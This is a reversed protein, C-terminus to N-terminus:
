PGTTRIPADQNGRWTQERRRHSGSCRQSTLLPATFGCFTRQGSTGDTLAPFWGSVPMVCSSRPGPPAPPCPGHGSVPRQVRAVVDGVEGVALLVAAAGPGHGVVRRGPFWGALPGAFTAGARPNDPRTSGSTMARSYWCPIPGPPWCSTLFLCDFAARFRSCVATAAYRASCGPALWASSALTRAASCLRPDLRTGYKSRVMLAALLM